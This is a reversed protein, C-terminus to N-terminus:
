APTRTGRSKLLYALVFGAVFALIPVLVTLTLSPYSQPREIIVIPDEATFGAIQSTYAFNDGYEGKCVKLKPSQGGAAVTISEEPQSQNDLCLPSKEQSAFKVTLEATGRNYFFVHDNKDVPFATTTQTDKTGIHIKHTAM